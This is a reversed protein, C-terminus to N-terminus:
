AGLALAGGMIEKVTRNKPTMIVSSPEVAIQLLLDHAHATKPELLLM